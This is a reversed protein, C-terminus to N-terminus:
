REMTWSMVGLASRVGPLTRIQGLRARGHEITGPSDSALIPIMTGGRQTVYLDAGSRYFDATYIEIVANSSGLLTMGLGLAIWVGLIMGVLGRWRRLVVRIPYPLGLLWGVRFPRSRPLGGIGQVVASM